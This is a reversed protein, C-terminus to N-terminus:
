LGIGLDIGREDRDKSNTRAHEDPTNREHEALEKSLAKHERVDRNLALRISDREARAEAPDGIERELRTRQELVADDERENAQVAGELFAREVANPDQERGRHRQPEPLDALREALQARQNSLTLIRADLDEIRQLQRTPLAALQARFQEMRGVLERLRETSPAAPTAPEARAAAQEQPPEAAVTRGSVLQPDDARGAAPEPAAGPLQEIALDEDDREVM